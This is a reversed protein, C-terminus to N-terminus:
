RWTARVIIRRLNLSGEDESDNSTFALRFEEKDYIADRQDGADKLADMVMQAFEDRSPSNSPDETAVM